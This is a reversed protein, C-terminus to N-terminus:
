EEKLEEVQVDYRASLLADQRLLTQVDDYESSTVELVLADFQRVGRVYEQFLGGLLVTLGDRACCACGFSHRRFPSPPPQVVVDVWGERSVPGLAVCVCCERQARSFCEVDRTIYLPIRSM